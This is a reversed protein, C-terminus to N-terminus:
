RDSAATSFTFEMWFLLEDFLEDTKKNIIDQDLGYRDQPRKRNIGKIINDMFENSSNFLVALGRGPNTSLSDLFARLASYHNTNSIFYDQSLGHARISGRSRFNLLPLPIIGLKEDAFVGHREHIETLPNSITYVPQVFIQRGAQQKSSYRDILLGNFERTEPITGSLAEDAISDAARLFDFLKNPEQLSELVRSRFIVSGSELSIQSNRNLESSVISGDPAM